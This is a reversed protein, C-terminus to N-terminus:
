PLLLSAAQESKLSPLAATGPCLPNLHVLDWDPVEEASPLSASGSCGSGGPCLVTWAAAAPGQWAVTPACFAEECVGLSCLLVQLLLCFLGPWKRARLSIM